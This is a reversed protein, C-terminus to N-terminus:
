NCNTAKKKEREMRKGEEIGMQYLANVIVIENFIPDADGHELDTIMAAIRYFDKADDNGLMLHNMLRKMKALMEPPFNEETSNGHMFYLVPNTHKLLTTGM